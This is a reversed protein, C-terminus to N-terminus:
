ANAHNDQGFPDIDIPRQKREVQPTDDTSQFGANATAISKVQNAVYDLGATIKKKKNDKKDSM